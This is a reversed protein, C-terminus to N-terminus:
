LSDLLLDLRASFAVIRPWSRPVIEQGHALNNRLEELERLAREAAKRSMSLVREPDVAPVRLALQGKDSFQLCDLLRPHHVGRRQREAQLERAKALRGSTVHSKWAEAPFEADVARTFVMELATIMGFLFMRVPPKELDQFTVIASVEDLITVFCRGNAGLTQIVDTLSANEPVLDDPDFSRAHEGCCGGRLDSREVYARVMGERRVGVRELDRSLMFALVKSAPQDWDFSALPEAVDM